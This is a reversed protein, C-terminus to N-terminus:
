KPHKRLDAYLGQDTVGCADAIVRYTVGLRLLDRVIKRRRTCISEVASANARMMESFSGVEALKAEITKMDGATKKSTQKPKM